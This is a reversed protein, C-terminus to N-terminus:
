QPFAVKYTDVKSEINSSTLHDDDLLDFIGRVGLSLFSATWHGHHGGIEGAGRRWCEREVGSMERSQLRSGHV